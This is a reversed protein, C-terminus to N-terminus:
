NVSPHHPHPGNTTTARKQKKLLAKMRRDLEGSRQMQKYRMIIKDVEEQATMATELVLPKIYEETKKM